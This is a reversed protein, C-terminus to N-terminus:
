LFAIVGECVLGDVTRWGPCGWSSAIRPAPRLGLPTVRPASHATETPVQSSRPHRCRLLFTDLLRQHHNGHWECLVVHILELLM